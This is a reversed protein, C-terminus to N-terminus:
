LEGEELLRFKKIQQDSEFVGSKLLPTKTSSFGGLGGM